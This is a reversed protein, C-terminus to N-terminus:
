QGDLEVTRSDQANLRQVGDARKNQLIQEALLDPVHRVDLQEVVLVLLRAAAADEFEPGLIQRLLGDLLHVPVVQLAALEDHLFVEVHLPVLGSPDHLTGSSSTLLSVTNM